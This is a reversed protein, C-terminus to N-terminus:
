HHIDRICVYPHITSCQIDDWSGDDDMEVCPGNGTNDFNEYDNDSGDTWLYTESEIANSLGIWTEDDNGAARILELVFANELPNHISVMNGGLINCVSEADAFQRGDEQYKYCHCDLQTWGAPCSNEVKPATPKSWVGTLLGSIGCLLFVSRLGFAM